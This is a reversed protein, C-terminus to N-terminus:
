LRTLMYCDIWSVCPGFRDTTTGAHRIQWQQHGLSSTALSGEKIINIM